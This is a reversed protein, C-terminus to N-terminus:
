FWISMRENYLENCKSLYDNLGENEFEDSMAAWITEFEEVSDAMIARPLMREWVTQVALKNAYENGSPDLQLQAFEATDIFMEGMKKWYTTGTWGMANNIRTTNENWWMGVDGTGIIDYKGDPINGFQYTFDYLGEVGWNWWWNEDSGWMEGTWASMQVVPKGPIVELDRRVVWNYGETAEATNDGTFDWNVTGLLNLRGEETNAYNYFQMFREPDACKTTIAVGAPYLNLPTRAYTVQEVSEDAKPYVYVMQELSDNSQEYAIVESNIEWGPGFYSWVKGAVCKQKLTERSLVPSEPDLYGEIHLQNLFAFFKKIEPSQNFYILKGDSRVLQDSEELGYIGGAVEILEKLYGQNGPALALAVPLMDPYVERVQDLLAKYEDITKPMKDFGIDEFMGTRVNLAKDTEIKAAEIGGRIYGGGWMDPLYYFNGDKDQIRNAFESWNVNMVDPAHAELLDNLPLLKGADIFQKMMTPDDFRILDPLDDTALMINMRELPEAPPIIHEIRVGTLDYVQQMVPAEPPASKFNQDPVFMTFTIDPLKEEAIAGGGLGFTMLIAITLLFSTLRKRM